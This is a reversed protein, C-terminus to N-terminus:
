GQMPLLYVVRKTNVKHDHRLEELEDEDEDRSRKTSRVMKGVDHFLGPQAFEM